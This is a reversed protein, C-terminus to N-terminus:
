NESWSIMEDVSFKNQNSNLPSDIGWKKLVELFEPDYNINGDNASSNNLTLNGGSILSGTIDFKNGFLTDSYSYILGQMIISNDGELSEEGEVLVGENDINGKAIIILYDDEYGAEQNILINTGISLKGDVVIVGSGNLNKIQKDINLNGQIYTFQEAIQDISEVNIYDVLNVYEVTENANLLVKNDAQNKLEEFDFEPIVFESDTIVDVTDGQEDIIEGNIGDRSIIKGSSLIQNNNVDILGGSAITSDFISNYISYAATVTESVGNNSATARFEVINYSDKFEWELKEVNAGDLYSNIESFSTLKYKPNVEQDPNLRSRKNDKDFVETGYAIAAEAAYFAKRQNSNYSYFDLESQLMRTMSAVMLLIAVLIFMSLVLTFGKEDRAKIM